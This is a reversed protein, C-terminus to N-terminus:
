SSPVKFEKQLTLEGKLRYVEAEYWREGTTQVMALSDTLVTQSNGDLAPAEHSHALLAGLYPRWLAAGTARYATLSQSMRAIGDEGQGREARAWGQLFTGRAVFLMFGQETALALLAEAQEQAAQEERRHQHLV